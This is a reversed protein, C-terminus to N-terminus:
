TDYYYVLFGPLDSFVNIEKMDVFLVVIQM